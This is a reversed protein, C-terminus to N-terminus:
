IRQKGTISLTIGPSIRYRHKKTNIPALLHLVPDYANEFSSVEGIALCPDKNQPDALFIVSEMHYSSQHNHSVYSAYLASRTLQHYHSRWTTCILGIGQMQETMLGTNAKRTLHPVTFQRKLEVEQISQIMNCRVLPEIMSEIM